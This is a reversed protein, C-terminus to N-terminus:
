LDYCFVMNIWIVACLYLKKKVYALSSANKKLSSTFFVGLMGFM